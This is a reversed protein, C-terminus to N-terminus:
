LRLLIISIITLIVGLIRSATLKEKYIVASLIIAIVFHMGTISAIISLPGLSLAKLFSYFGALNILGMCFGIILADRQNNKVEEAELTKRLGFSFLTSIIYSLAIFAMKNTYIAAFKSSIAAGAGGLLSIFVFIIGRKISGFSAEKNSLHRTLIAIVAMALAIGMYQYLSLHDKFYFISFLVVIVANLRIIPYAVGAPIHKLAEMHTVTAILFAGGNLFAIFFLYPINSVSEKLAFVLVSSLIAVTAMFSRTTWATNCKREVSVKYLFRQVGLLVLALVAFGYWRPM